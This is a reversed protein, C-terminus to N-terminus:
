EQQHEQKEDPYSDRYFQMSLGDLCPMCTRHMLHKRLFPNKCRQCISLRGTAKLRRPILSFEREEALERDIIADFDIQLRQM